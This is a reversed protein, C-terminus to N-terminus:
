TYEIYCLLVASYLLCCVNKSIFISILFIKYQVEILPLRAYNANLEDPIQGDMGRYYDKMLRVTDQYRDVEAQMTTIYFNSLVGLRDDLWGDNVINQRENEAQIKREDSISWLAERLDDVRQHLEAKTEEDERM